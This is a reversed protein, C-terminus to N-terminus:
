RNWYLGQFEIDLDSPEYRQVRVGRDGHLIYNSEM